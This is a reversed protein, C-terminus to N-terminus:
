YYYITNLVAMCMGSVSINSTKSEWFKVGRDSTEHGAWLPGGQCKSMQVWKM